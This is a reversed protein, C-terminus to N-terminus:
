IKVFVRVYVKISDLQYRMFRLTIVPDAVLLEYVKVFTELNQAVFECKPEGAFDQVKLVNLSAHMVYLQMVVLM